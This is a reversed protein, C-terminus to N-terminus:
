LFMFLLPSFRTRAPRSFDGENVLFLLLFSDTVNALFCGNYINAFDIFFTVHIQFILSERGHVMSLSESKTCNRVEVSTRIRFCEDIDTPSERSFDVPSNEITYIFFHTNQHPTPGIIM